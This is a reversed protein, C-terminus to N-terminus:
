STRPRITLHHISTPAPQSLQFVVARAIDEPQLMASTRSVLGLAEWRTFAAPLLAPDFNSLFETGDIGHIEITM